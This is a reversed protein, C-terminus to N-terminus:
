PGPCGQVSGPSPCGFREMFSEFTFGAAASYVGFKYMRLNSIMELWRKVAGCAVGPECKLTVSIFRAM